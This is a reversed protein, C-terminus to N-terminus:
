LALKHALGASFSINSIRDGFTLTGWHLGGFTQGQNIYGSSGLISGISFHVKNKSFVQQKIVMAIPSAIWSAM